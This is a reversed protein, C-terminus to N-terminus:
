VLNGGSTLSEGQTKTSNEVIEAVKYLGKKHLRLVHRFSIDMDVAIKEFTMGYIYRRRIVQAERRNLEDIVAEIEIRKEWVKAREEIAKMHYDALESALRGTKDSIGSGKPMDSLEVRVTEIDTELDAIRRELAKLKEEAEKYQWLYARAEEKTM